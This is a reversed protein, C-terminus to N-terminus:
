RCVKLLRGQPDIEGNRVRTTSIPRGDASKLLDVVRLDLSHLDNQRRLRNLRRGSALTGETVILAELKKRKAAPGYPERLM